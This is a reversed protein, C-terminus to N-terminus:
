PPVRNVFSPVEQRKQGRCSKSRETTMPYVDLTAQSMTDQIKSLQKTLYFIIYVPEADM